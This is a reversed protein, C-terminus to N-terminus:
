LFYRTIKRTVSFQFQQVTAYKTVPAKVQAERPSFFYANKNSIFKDFKNIFIGSARVLLMKLGFHVLFRKAAM